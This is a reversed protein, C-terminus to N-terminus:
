RGVYALRVTEGSLDTAPRYKRDVTPYRRFPQRSGCSNSRRGHARLESLAPGIVWYDRRECSVGRCGSGRLGITRASGLGVAQAGNRDHQQHSGLPKQRRHRLFSSGAHDARFSEWCWDSTLQRISTQWTLVEVIPWLDVAACAPRESNHGVRWLTAWGDVAHHHLPESMGAVHLKATGLASTRGGAVMIGCPLRDGAFLCLM